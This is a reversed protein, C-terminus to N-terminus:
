NGLYSQNWQRMAPPYGDRAVDYLSIGLAAAVKAAEALDTVARRTWEGDMAVLLLAAPSRPTAAEFYGEVEARTDVFEQLYRQREQQAKKKKGWPIQM